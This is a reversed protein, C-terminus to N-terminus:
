FNYKIGVQAGLGSQNGFWTENIHDYGSMGESVMLQYNLKAVISFPYAVIGLKIGPEAYYVGPTKLRGDTDVIFENDYSSGKQDFLDAGVMAYPTLEMFRTFPIGYGVGFSVRYNSYAKVSQLGYGFDIMTYTKGGHRGIHALYDVEAVIANSLGGAQYLVSVGMRADPKEKLIMGKRVAMPAGSIQYFLTTVAPDSYNNGVETARVYAQRRSQLRGDATERYSYVGYRRGNRVGEKTGIRAEIPKTEVIASAIQFKDMEEIVVSEWASYARQVWSMQENGLYWEIMKGRTTKVHELPFRMADFAKVKSAKEMDTDSAECWANAYFDTMMDEDWKLKYLSTMVHLTDRDPCLDMVLVYTDDLLREGLILSDSPSISTMDINRDKLSQNYAGRKKLTKDDFSGDSKRDYLYSVVSKGVQAQNLVETLGNETLVQNRSFPVKVSPPIMNVDFRSDIKIKHICPIIFSDFRDGHELVIVSISSRDYVDSVFDTKPKVQAKASIFAASVFFAIFLKKIM